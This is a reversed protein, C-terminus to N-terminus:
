LIKKTCKIAVIFKKYITKIYKAYVLLVLIVLLGEYVFSYNIDFVCILIQAIIIVYAIISRKWDIEIKMIKRSDIVRILWCIFYSICTAIAAGQVKFVPILIANMGINSLAAIFTSYFLVRTRKSSTYISGLFTSLVQFLVGFLLVPVYVYATYFEKAFILKSIIKVFWICGSVLVACLMTYMNYIGSYFEKSHRDQFNEVASIQWANMFVNSIVNVLSPLKYAVAYIGNESVGCMYTVFFKDVSNSVWWSISNPIMPLAYSIMEKFYSSYRIDRFNLYQAIRVNYLIYISSITFGIIYSVLYGEVGWRFVLLFLINFLVTCGTNIIGSSSYIKIKELGKATYSAFNNMAYAFYYLIFLWYYSRITGIFLIIPSLILMGVLGVLNVVFGVTVIKSKDSDKDLLFRIVAEDVLLTFVPWIMTVITVILDVIGYQETSLVSTYFPVFLFTLMKQGFSGVMFWITNAGLKKYKKDM